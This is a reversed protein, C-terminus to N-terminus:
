HWIQANYNGGSPNPGTIYFGFADNYQTNVWTLYEESAFVFNFLVVDGNPVFDFELVAADFTSTINVASPNSTVSQATALVNPDGPGGVVTSPMNPPVINAVFGSSMVVGSDLGINSGNAEFFGIQQPSGTFTINSTVLGPGILTNTVLDTPTPTNDVIINQAFVSGCLLFTFFSLKLLNSVM